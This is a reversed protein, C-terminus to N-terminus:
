DKNKECLDRIADTLERDKSEFPVTFKDWKLDKEKMPPFMDHDLVMEM